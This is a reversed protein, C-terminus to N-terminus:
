GTLSFLRPLMKLRIWSEAPEVVYRIEAIDDYIPRFTLFQTSENVHVKLDLCTQNMVFIHGRTAVTPSEQVGLNHDSPSPPTDPTWYRWLSSDGYTDASYLKRPLGTVLDGDEARILAPRASQIPHALQIEKKNDKNSSIAGHVLRHSDLILTDLVEVFRPCQLSTIAYTLGRAEFDQYVKWYEPLTLISMRVSDSLFQAVNTYSLGAFVIQDEGPISYTKAQGSYFGISMFKDLAPSYAFRLHETVIDEILPMLLLRPTQYKAEAVLVGKDFLSVAETGHFQRCALAVVDLVSRTFGKDHYEPNSVILITESKVAVFGDRYLVEKVITLPLHHNTNNTTALAHIQSGLAQRSKIVAFGFNTEKYDKYFLEQPCSAETMVHMLDSYTAATSAISELRKVALRDLNSMYKMLGPEAELRTAELLIKALSPALDLGSGLIKVYVQITSSWSVEHSISVYPAFKKRIIHHDIISRVGMRFCAETKHCDVLVINHYNRPKAVRSLLSSFQPGLIYKVEPPVYECWTHVPREPYLVKRRVAEFLASCASDADPRPHGLVYTADPRDDTQFIALLDDETILKPLNSTSTVLARKGRLDTLMETFKERELMDCGQSPLLGSDDFSILLEQLAADDRAHNLNEYREWIPLIASPSPVGVWSYCERIMLKPHQAFVPVGLDLSCTGSSTVLSRMAGSIFDSSEPSWFKWHGLLNTSSLKTPLGGPGVDGIDFWGPRSVPIRWQGDQSQLQGNNFKLLVANSAVQPVQETNYIAFTDSLWEAFSSSAVEPRRQALAVFERINLM